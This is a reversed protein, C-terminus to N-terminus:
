SLTKFQRLIESLERISEQMQGFTIESANSASSTRQSLESISVVNENIDSAVVKQQSTATAIQVTKENMESVLETISNFIEGAQTINQTGTHTSTLGTNIMEVAKGSASQLRQIMNAIEETSHKTKQSLMRVEDAVVAFGRGTEGARAAEIAANLALLNTQESIGEIVDIVTAINEVDRNLEAITDATEQIGASMNRITRIAEDVVKKGDSADTLANETAQAALEANFAIETASAEMECIATAVQHTNHEQDATWSVTRSLGESTEKVRDHLIQGIGNATSIVEGIKRVFHNFGEALIGAEDSACYKIRQTLDKEGRGISHLAEAVQDIPKFLRFIMFSLLAIFTVALLFSIIASRSASSNIDNYLDLEPIETILIWGISPLAVSALVLNGKELDSVNIVSQSGDLLVALSEDNLGNIIETVPKGINEKQGHVKIQGDASVLYVIGNEGIRYNGILDSLENLSKGVGGVGLFEGEAEIRYNVFGTLDGTHEDTDINLEYQNGKSVFNFYWNDEHSDRSVSKLVGKEYFFKKSNESVMFIASSNSRRKLNNLYEILEGYGQEREGQLLWNHIFFNDALGQSHIVSENIYSDVQGKVEGLAAPIESKEVRDVTLQYMTKLNILTSLIILGLLSLSPFLILKVKIKV